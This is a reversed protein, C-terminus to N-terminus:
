RYVDPLRQAGCVPWPQWGRRQYTEWVKQDQVAAPADSAYTYGGYGGWTRVDYQYAGYYGNGSNRDYRGGAECQRLKALAAGFDGSFSPKAGVTEVQKKPQKLVVSQIEKRSQEVGNKMVIEYIVSRKGKEGPTTIQKYGAERDADQVKEVPFDVDEEVTVTQTGNRWVEVTLGNTLVASKPVSLTDDKGLEIGKAELMGGVTKEQSYAETKKGYLVLTFATARDITVQLGAGYATVDSIPEVTTIDEDHLTIGADKAIQKSTQYPSLVKQTTSGDIVVVPRARYINVDYSKAVLEEGLAPEVLDKEDVAIGADDLAGRVTQAATLIGLDKGRDHITVLKKGTDPDNSDAAFARHNVSFVCLAVAVFTVIAIILKNPSSNELLTRM